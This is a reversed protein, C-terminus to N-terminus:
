HPAAADDIGDLGVPNAEDSFPAQLHERAHEPLLLLDSM